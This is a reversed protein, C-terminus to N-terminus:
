KVLKGGYSMFAKKYIYTNKGLEIYNRCNESNIMVCANDWYPTFIDCMRYLTDTTIYDSNVCIEYDTVNKGNNFLVIEINM